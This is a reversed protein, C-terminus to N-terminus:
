LRGQQMAVAVQQMFGEDFARVQAANALWQMRARDVGVFRDSPAVIVNRGNGGSTAAYHFDTLEAPRGPLWVSYAQAATVEVFGNAARVNPVGAQRLARMMNQRMMHRRRMQSATEAMAIREVVDNVDDSSLKGSSEPWVEVRRSGDIDPIRTGGPLQLALIGLRSSKAIAIEYRTWQSALIGKSELFVVMSKHALEQVIRQQFDAGADTRFRDVYIDFNRKALAEFLQEALASAEDVRYSIFVRREPSTVGAAAFVLPAFEAASVQWRGVNTKALAAPLPPVHKGEPTLVIGATQGNWQPLLLSEDMAATGSGIFVLVKQSLTQTLASCGFDSRQAPCPASGCLIDDSEIRTGSAGLVQRRMELRLLMAERDAEPSGDTILVVHAPLTVPVGHFGDCTVARRGGVREPSQVVLQPIAAM